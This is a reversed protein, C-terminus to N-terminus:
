PWGSPPRVLRPRGPARPRRRRERRRGPRLEHHASKYSKQGATPNPDHVSTMTRFRAPTNSAAAPSSGPTSPSDDVAACAESWLTCVNRVPVTAKEGDSAHVTPQPPTSLEVASAWDRCQFPLFHTLTSVTFSPVIMLPRSPIEAVLGASMHATPQISLLQRM